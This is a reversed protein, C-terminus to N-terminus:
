GALRGSSERFTVNTERLERETAGPLDDKIMAALERFKDKSMRYNRRFEADHWTAYNWELREKRLPGRRLRVKYPAKRRERRHQQRSFAAALLIATFCLQM